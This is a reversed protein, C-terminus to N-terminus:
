NKDFLSPSLMITSAFEFVTIAFIESLKTLFPTFAPLITPSIDLNVPAFPPPLGFKACPPIFSQEFSSSIKFLTSSSNFITLTYNM